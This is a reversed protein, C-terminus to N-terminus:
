YHALAHAFVTENKPCCTYDEPRIVIFTGGLNVGALEREGGPAGILVIVEDIPQALGMFAEVKSAAEMLHALVDDHDTAGLRIIAFDM